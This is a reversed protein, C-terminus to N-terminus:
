FQRIVSCGLRRAVRSEPNPWWGYRGGILVVSGPKIAYELMLRKDRGVCIDVRLELNARSAMELFLRETFELSVDPTSLSLPYPVVRLVLLRIQAGLDKALRAATDIGKITAQTSTHLVTVEIPRGPTNDVSVTLFPDSATRKLKAM